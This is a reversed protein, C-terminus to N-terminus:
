LGQWLYPGEVHVGQGVYIWHMTGQMSGKVAEFWFSASLLKALENLRVSFAVIAGILLSPSPLHGFGVFVVDCM